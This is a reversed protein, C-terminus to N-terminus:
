KAMLKITGSFSTLSINPGGHGTNFILEKGPTYKSTRRAEPGFENNISGSFTNLDYSAPANSDVLLTITGSMTEMDVDGGGTPVAFCDIAGSVTEMSAETLSGGNILIRGSVNEADFEGTAVDVEINGSVSEISTGSPASEVKVSGSVAEIDLAEPQGRVEVQGSVTEIEVWSSMGTISISASVTKVSLPSSAPMRIMLDTSTEHRGHYDEDFEVELYVEGDEEDVHIDLEEVGDGLTGTVELTSNSWAEITLSGALNEIQVEAGPAVQITENVPQGAVAAGAAAVLLLMMLTPVKTTHKM